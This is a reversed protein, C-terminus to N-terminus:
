ESWKKGCKECCYEKGTSFIVGSDGCKFYSSSVLKKNNLCDHKFLEKIFENLKTIM